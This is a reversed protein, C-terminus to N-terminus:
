LLLIVPSVSCKSVSEVATTSSVVVLERVEVLPISPAPSVVVVSGGGGSGCCSKNILDKSKLLLSIGM